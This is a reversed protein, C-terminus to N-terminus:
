LDINHIECMTHVYNLLINHLEMFDGDFELRIANEHKTTMANRFEILIHETEYLYIWLIIEGCVKDTFKILSYKNNHEDEKEVFRQYEMWEYTKDVMDIINSRVNDM